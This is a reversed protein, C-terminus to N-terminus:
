SSTNISSEIKNEVDDSLSCFFDIGTLSEIQDISTIFSKLSSISGQNIM